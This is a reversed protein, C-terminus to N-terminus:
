SLITIDSLLTAVLSCDNTTASVPAKEYWVKAHVVTLLENRPLQGKNGAMFLVKAVMM